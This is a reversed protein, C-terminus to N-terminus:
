AFFQPTSSPSAAPELRPLMVSEFDGTGSYRSASWVDSLWDKFAQGIVKGQKLGSNQNDTNDSFIFDDTLMSLTRVQKPDGSNQCHLPWYLMAYPKLKIDMTGYSQLSWDMSTGLYSELCRQLVFSHCQSKSYNDLSELYECVSLHSFRFYGHDDVVVMNCCIDLINETTLVHRESAFTVAPALDEIDMLKQACLLWEFVREAIVRSPRALDLVRQHTRKYSERLTQPLSGLEQRIDSEIKICMNDCLNDIQLTVWRFM